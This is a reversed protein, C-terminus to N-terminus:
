ASREVLKQHRELLKDFQPMVKAVTQDVTQRGLYVPTFDRSLMIVTEQWTTTTKYPRAKAITGDLVGAIVERSKPPAPREDYAKSASARAMFGRNGEVHKIMSATSTLVEIAKYASDPDKAATSVGFGSGAAYTVSGAPGAPVAAVDWDFKASAAIAAAAWPGDILMAARGSYFQENGFQRNSLDTIPVGTKDKTFISSIFEIGAKAQESDLTCSTQEQNMYDGGASWIWPVTNDMSPYTAFGYQRAAPSTVEKCISRFDEWTMPKDPRPYPVGAKRLMDKNYFLLLPGLDYALAYPRGDVSMGDRIPKFFDEYDVSPDGKIYDDLPRLTKRAVFEPLRQDQMVMIEPPNGSAVQTVIKDWYDDFGITQLSVSLDPYKAHVDDALTGWVACDAESDCFMAWRLKGAIKAEDVVRKGGAAGSGGGGGGCAALFASAAMLASGSIFTRRSSAARVIDEYPM